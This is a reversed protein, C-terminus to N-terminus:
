RAYNLRPHFAGRGEPTGQPLEASEHPFRIPHLAQALSKAFAVMNWGGEEHRIAPDKMRPAIYEAKRRAFGSCFSREIGVFTRMVLV